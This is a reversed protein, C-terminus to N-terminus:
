VNDDGSLDRSNVRISPMPPPIKDVSVNKDLELLISRITDPPIQEGLNDVIENNLPYRNNLNFFNVKFSKVTEVNFSHLRKADATKQLGERFQKSKQKTQMEETYWPNRSANTSVLSDCIEPKFIKMDEPRLRDYKNTDYLKGDEILKKNPLKKDGFQINFLEIIDDPIVPSTEMLRDFEEKCMKLFQIVPLRESPHKALETKINRYFKDWAISSVRHAENLQTIKLFQQVTTIIGALINFAGVTMVFYGQYAVPVRDQAFNATGTLTSIIIVPITYWTNKKSFSSNAKGHLWRYCMAKDAWEVLINEHDVSWDVDKLATNFAEDENDSLLSENDKQEM